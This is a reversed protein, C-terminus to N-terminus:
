SASDCVLRNYHVVSGSHDVDDKLACPEEASSDDVGAVAAVSGDLGTTVGDLRDEAM